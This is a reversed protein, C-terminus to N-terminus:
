SKLAPANGGKRGAVKKQPTTGGQSSSSRFLFSSSGENNVNASTDPM